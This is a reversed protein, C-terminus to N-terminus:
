DLADVCNYLVIRRCHFDCTKGDGRRAHRAEHGDVEVAAEMGAAEDGHPSRCSSNESQQQPIMDRGVPSGFHHPAIRKPLQGATVGVVATV